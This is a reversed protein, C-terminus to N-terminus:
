SHTLIEAVFLNNIRSFLIFFTAQPLVCCRCGLVVITIHEYLGQNKAGSGKASILVGKWGEPCINLGDISMQRVCLPIHPHTAPDQKLFKAKSVKRM